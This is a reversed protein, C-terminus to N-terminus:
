AETLPGSESRRLNIIMVGAVVLLGALLYTIRFQEGLLICSLITGFIPIFSNFIAIEGVPNYCILQNFLSFGISSVAVLLALIFIGHWTVTPLSGGMILGAATLMVGGAFLSFGTAFVPDVKRTVVRTLIGGFASSLASLLIMGDGALTFSGSDGGGANILLIGSFGCVCGIAKRLTMKEGKFFVCALIIMIFTSSADLISSRSGTTNALGMYFFFYHFGTNVLSFLLLWRLDAGSGTSFSRKMGKAIALVILGSIIFRIGAFLTKSGADGATIGFSAFGLKILPFAFAWTFAALLAFFWVFGRKTFINEKM